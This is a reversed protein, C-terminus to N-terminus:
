YRPYGIKGRKNQ